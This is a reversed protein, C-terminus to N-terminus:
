YELDRHLFDNLKEQLGIVILRILLLILYPSPGNSLVRGVFRRALFPVDDM